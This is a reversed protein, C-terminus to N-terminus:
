SNASNEKSEVKEDEVAEDEEKEKLNSKNEDEIETEIEIGLLKAGAEYIQKFSKKSEQLKALTERAKQIEKEMEADIGDLQKKAEEMTRKYLDEQEKNLSM